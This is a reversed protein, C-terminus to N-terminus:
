SKKHLNVARLNIANWKGPVPSAIVQYHDAPLHIQGFDIERFVAWDKTADLHVSVETRGKEGIFSLKLDSPEMSSWEAMAHIQCDKDVDLKWTATANEEFWFALNDKGGRTETAMSGTVQADGPILSVADNTFSNVKIAPAVVPPPDFSRVNDCEIKFVTVFRSSNAPVHIRLGDPTQEFSLPASNGLLHVSQIKATAAPSKRLSTLLVDQGSVEGLCSAYLSHSGKVAYRIDKANLPYDERFSGNAVRTPGEGYTIWPRTGFISESNIKMWTALDSMLTEVEPDLGGDPRLVVNLLLTGNKSCIDVLSKLVWDAKRYPWGKNYFWDGISTDVQWPNPVIDKASGRERDEVYASTEKGKALYVAENNQNYLNAVTQLGYQGFPMGGDSYLLDPHYHSILDNVRLYWESHWAENKSYWEKDDPAPLPHYLDQLNPNNGDYPIGKMPGSKDASKSVTWWTYSAGLHESVGFKLGHKQAAKQWLGVVDKHPGHQVANWRHFKSDWLDFNDHHVGMSVFFKAGAAKYLQMLRDPNWNEAKWKELIEVYGHQSPHGYEQLHAKYVPSGEEYMHRAYWDGQMPVAQPGWHAWIGFKADRYWEPAKYENLSVWTPEFKQMKNGQALAAGLLISIMPM